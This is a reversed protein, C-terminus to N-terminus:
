GLTKGVLAAISAPDTDGVSRGEETKGHFAILTSQMRAGFARVVDKQRDFDVKYIVLDRYKPDAALRALIPRQRACTPCWSAEIHVLIPKGAQESAAFAQRTFAAETAALAPVAAGLSAGLAVAVAVLLKAAPRM